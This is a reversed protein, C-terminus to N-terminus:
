ITYLKEIDSLVEDNLLDEIGAYMNVSVHNLGKSWDSECVNARYKRIFLNILELDWKIHPNRSLIEWDLEDQHIMIYDKSLPLYSYLGMGKDSYLKKYAEIMDESYTEGSIEQLKRITDNINAIGMQVVFGPNDLLHLIRCEYKSSSRNKHILEVLEWSWNTFENEMLSRRISTSKTLGDKVDMDEYFNKTYNWKYVKEVSYEWKYKKGNLLFDLGKRNLVKENILRYYGKYANCADPYQYIEYKEIQIDTLPYFKRILKRFLMPGVITENLIYKRLLFLSVMNAQLQITDKLEQIHKINMQIQKLKQINQLLDNINNIEQKINIMM